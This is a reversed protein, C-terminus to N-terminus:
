TERAAQCRPSLIRSKYLIALLHAQASYAEVQITWVRSEVDRGEVEDVDVFIDDRMSGGEGGLEEFGRGFCDELGDGICVKWRVRGM